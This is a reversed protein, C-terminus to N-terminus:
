ANKLYKCWFIDPDRCQGKLRSTMLWTVMQYGMHWKRYTSQQLRPQIELSKRSLSGFVNQSWTWSRSRELDRSTTSWTVLRNAMPWKRNTTWQYWTEIKLRKRSIWGWVGTRVCVCAALSKIHLPCVIIQLELSTIGYKARGGLECWISLIDVMPRFCAEMCLGFMGTPTMQETSNALGTISLDDLSSGIINYM